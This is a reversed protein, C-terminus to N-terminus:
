PTPPAQLAALARELTELDSVNTGSITKDIRKVLGTLAKGPGFEIMADVGDAAMSKVNDVWRVSGTIQLPM